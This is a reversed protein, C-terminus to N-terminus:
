ERDHIMYRPLYIYMYIYICSGGWKDYKGMIDWVTSYIGMRNGM